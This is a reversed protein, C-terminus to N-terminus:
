APESVMASTQPFAPMPVISIELLEAALVTRVPTRLMVSYNWDEELIEATFSCQHIDGRKMSTVLDRAVQTDPLDISYGVGVLQGALKLTGATTRGLVMASDHSLLACVDDGIHVSGPAFLDRYGGRDLSPTDWVICIGHLAGSADAALPAGPLQVQQYTEIERTRM